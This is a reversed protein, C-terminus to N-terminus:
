LMAIRLSNGGWKAVATGAAAGLLTRRSFRRRRETTPALPRLKRADAEKRAALYAQFDEHDKEGVEKRRRVFADVSNQRAPLEASETVVKASLGSRTAQKTKSKKTRKAM